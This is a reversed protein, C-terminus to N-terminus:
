VFEDFDEEVDDFVSFPDFEEQKKESNKKESKVQIEPKIPFM